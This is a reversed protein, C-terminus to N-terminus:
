DPFKRTCNISINDKLTCKKLLGPKDEFAAAASDEFVNGIFNSNCIRGAPDTFVSVAASKEDNFGTIHNNIIRFSGHIEIGAQVNSANGRTVLNSRLISTSSGYSNLVVPKQCDVVMNDHINWNLSPANVDFSDGQKMPHSEKLKFHLTEPDFSEIESTQITGNNDKGQWVLKWGKSMEPNIRELPLGFPRPSRVFTRDDIVEGVVSKGSLTTIGTGCNRLLNDHVTVNLAPESLKIGTVLPDNKGRVYIQNDSIITDNASVNVAIRRIPEMGICTMDFINGTIITNASPYHLADTEGRAEVACSNFNIFLNNRIIVQTSGVISAIANTAYPVFGEFVNDAVIHQGAGLRPYMRDRNEPTIRDAERNAPGLNGIGIPGSNRVYNGIFKVFRSAGEWANGGCDVIRCNLISTNEISSM